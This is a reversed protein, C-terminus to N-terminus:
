QPKFNRLMEAMQQKTIMEELSRPNRMWALDSTPRNLENNGPNDREQLRRFENLRAWGEGFSDSYMNDAIKPFRASAAKPHRERLTALIGESNAGPQWDEKYATRHGGIEHSLAPLADEYNTMKIEARGEPGHEWFTAEPKLGKGIYMDLPMGEAEPYANYYNDWKVKKGMPGQYIDLGKKKNLIELGADSIESVYDTPKYINLDKVRQIKTDKWIADEGVDHAYGRNHQDNLEMDRVARELKGHPFTRAGRGILTGAMGGGIHSPNAAGMMLQKVLEDQAPIAQESIVSKAPELLERKRENSPFFDPSFNNATKRLLGVLKDKFNPEYATAEDWQPAYDAM